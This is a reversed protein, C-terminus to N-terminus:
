GRVDTVLWGEPNRRLELRLESTVGVRLLSVSVSYAKGRRPGPVLNVVKAQPVKVKEPLRPPRKALADALEPAATQEFAGRARAEDEGVEYVVFAEAFRRAVRMADPGAPVAKSSSAGGGKGDNAEEGAPVDTSVPADAEPDKVTAVTGDASLVPAAGQLAPEVPAPEPKPDPVSAPSPAAALVTEPAANDGGGPSALVVGLALAGLAVVAVGSAGAARAPTDWSAVRERLPWILRKELAWYLREFPWRAPDAGRELARRGDWLVRDELALFADRLRKAVAKPAARLRPAHIKPKIPAQKPM